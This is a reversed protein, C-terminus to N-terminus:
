VFKRCIQALDRIERTPVIKRAILGPYAEPRWDRRAPIRFPAYERNEGLGFQDMIRAGLLVRQM